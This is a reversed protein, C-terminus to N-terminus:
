NNKTNEDSYPHHERRFCDQRGLSIRNSKQQLRPRSRHQLVRNSDRNFTKVTAWALANPLAWVLCTYRIHRIDRLRRKMRIDFIAYVVEDKNLALQSTKM